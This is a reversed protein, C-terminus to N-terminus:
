RWRIVESMYNNQRLGPTKKSLTFNCWKTLFKTEQLM